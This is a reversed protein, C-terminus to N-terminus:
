LELNTPLRRCGVTTGGGEPTVTVEGSGTYRRGDNVTVRYGGLPIKIFTALGNSDTIGDRFEPGSVYVRAGAIPENKETTMVRVCLDAGQAASPSPVASGVVGGPCSTCASFRSDMVDGYLREMKEHAPIWNATLVEHTSPAEDFDASVAVCLEVYRAVDREALISYSRAKDIGTRILNRLSEEGIDEADAPFKSSLHAFMENEFRERERGSFAQAAADTIPLRRAM